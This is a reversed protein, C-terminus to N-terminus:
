LLSPSCNQWKHPFSSKSKIVTLHMSKYTFAGFGSNTVFCIYMGSDEVSAEKIVLKNLYEGIGTVIDQEAELELYREPGVKLVKETEVSLEHKDLRKLWKIHPPALSKVKCQLTAADGAVVKTDAPGAETVIAHIAGVPQRVELTYNQTVEGILNRARCTYVGADATGLISFEVTSKGHRSHVAEDIHQGDKFWFIDPKPSGLAECSVKFTDGVSKTHFRESARTEYTMVPPAM